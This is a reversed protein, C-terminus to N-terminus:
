PIEPKVMSLVDQIKNLVDIRGSPTSFMCSRLVDRMQAIVAILEPIAPDPPWESSDHEYSLKHAEWRTRIAGLDIPESM